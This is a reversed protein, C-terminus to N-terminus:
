LKTPDNDFEVEEGFIKKRFDSLITLKNFLAELYGTKNGGDDENDVIKLQSWDVDNWDLIVTGDNDIRFNGNTINKMDDITTEYVINGNETPRDIIIINSDKKSNDIRITPKLDDHIIQNKKNNEDNSAIEILRDMKKNENIEYGGDKDANNSIKTVDKQQFEEKVDNEDHMDDGNNYFSLIDFKNSNAINSTADSFINIYSAGFELVAYSQSKKLWDPGFRGDIDESKGRLGYISAILAFIFCLIIYAKSVGFGFGLAQNVSMPLMELIPRLFKSILIHSCILIVIFILSNAIVKALYINPISMKLILSVPGGLLYTSIIALIWSLTSSFDRSFGKLFSFLGVLSLILIVAIDFQNNIM